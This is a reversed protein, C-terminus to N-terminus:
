LEEEEAETFDGINEELYEETLHEQILSMLVSDFTLGREACMRSKEMVNEFDALKPCRVWVHKKGGFQLLMFNFKLTDGYQTYLRNLVDALDDITQIEDKAEDFEKRMEANPLKKRESDILVEIESPDTFALKKAMEDVSHRKALDRVLEKFKTPNLKGRIKNMRVTQFKQLDEDAAFEESAVVCPVEESGNLREADYRHEGDIIRYKGDETKAVLIPQLNGVENSAVDAALENFLEDDLENPNWPNPHIQEIPIMFVNDPRKFEDTM